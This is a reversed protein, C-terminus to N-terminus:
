LWVVLLDAFLYNMFKFKTIYGDHLYLCNAMYHCINWYQNATKPYKFFAFVISMIFTFKGITKKRTELLM